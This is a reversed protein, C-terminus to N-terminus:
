RRQDKELLRKRIQEIEGLRKEIGSTEEHFQSETIDELIRKANLVEMRRKLQREEEALKELESSILAELEEMKSKVARAREEYEGRLERYTEESIKGELLLDPLKEIKGEISALEGRLRNLDELLRGTGSPIATSPRKRGYIFLASIAVALCLIIAMIPFFSVISWVPVAVALSEAGFFDETEPVVAKISLQGSVDVTSTYRFQGGYWYDPRLALIRWQEDGVKRYYITPSSDSPPDVTGNLYLITGFLGNTATASLTIHRVFKAVVRGPAAKKADTADILWASIGMYDKPLEGVRWGYKWLIPDNGTTEAVYYRLGRYEWYYYQSRNKTPPNHLNVGIMMHKEYIALIVKLGGAVMISAALTSFCDCDGFGDALTEIPYVIDRERYRLQRILMLVGNAFGEDDNGYILRLRKAIPEVADPTVFKLYDYRYYVEHSMQRYHSYLDSPVIIKLEYEKGKDYDKAAKLVIEYGAAQLPPIINSSIALFCITVQVLKIL